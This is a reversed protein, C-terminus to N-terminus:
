LTYVFRYIIIIIIIIYYYYYYYYHNLTKLFVKKLFNKKYTIIM